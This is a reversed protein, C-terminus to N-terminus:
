MTNTWSKTLPPCKITEKCSHVGTKDLSALPLFRTDRAPLWSLLTVTTKKNKSDVSSAYKKSPEVLQYSLTPWNLSAMGPLQETACNNKDSTKQICIPIGENNWTCINFNKQRSWNATARHRNIIIWWNLHQCFLSVWNVSKIWCYTSMTTM